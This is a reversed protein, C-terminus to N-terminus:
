GGTFEERERATADSASNLKFRLGDLLWMDRGNMPKTLQQISPANWENNIWLNDVLFGSCKMMLQPDVKMVGYYVLRWSDPYPPSLNFSLGGMLYFYVYLLFEADLRRYIRRKRKSNCRISFETQFSTWGATVHWPTRKGIATPNVSSQHRSSVLHQSSNRSSAM